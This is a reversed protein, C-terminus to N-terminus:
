IAEIRINEVPRRGIKRGVSSTIRTTIRYSALSVLFTLVAATAFRLPYNPVYHELLYYVHMHWLYIEYSIRGGLRVLPSEAVRMLFPFPLGFVFANLLMALGIGHITYRFTDQFFDGRWAIAAILLLLAFLLSTAGRLRDLRNRWIPHVLLMTLLCGWAISDLRTLTFYYNFDEPVPVAFFAFIRLALSFFIIGTLWGIRCKWTRVVVLLVPLLLYFHEEVALSWLVGYGHIGPGVVFGLSEIVILVNGLYLVALAIQTRDILQPEFLAYLPVTAALMLLLPPMLRVFRKLFFLKLNIRGIEAEGALLLRCILFGSIAFFVTVGFGGPIAASLRFHAVAVIVVAVLRLSDLGRIYGLAPEDSPQLPIRSVM